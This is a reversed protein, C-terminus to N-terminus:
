GPLKSTDFTNTPAAPLKVQENWHSFVDLQWTRKKGGLPIATTFEVPYPKGTAAVYLTYVFATSPTTSVIPVM